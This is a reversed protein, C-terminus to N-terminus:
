QLCMKVLPLVQEVFAEASPRDEQRSWGEVLGYIAWAAATAVTSPDAAGRQRLWLEILEQIQQRVPNEILSDLQREGATYHESSRAIFECVALILARLNDESYHSASLTRKELEARFANRLIEELLAFKDPYYIYFTARSVGAREAIEQVTIASFGKEALLESFAQQLLSCTRMARPNLKNSVPNTALM